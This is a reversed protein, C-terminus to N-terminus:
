FDYRLGTEVGFAEKEVRELQNATNYQFTTQDNYSLTGFARLRAGGDNKLWKVIGVSAVTNEGDKWGEYKDAHGIQGYVDTKNNVKYYGSIIAGLEKNGSNYDTQQAMVGVTLEKTPKLSVMARLSNFDGAQTYAVGADFKEDEHLIHGAVLDRRVDTPVGNKFVTVEGGHNNTGTTSSSADEDMAYHLKVQTKGDNFKPSIYQIVNNHRDGLYSFPLGVGSAYVYSQDVYDIDDDPTYIRGARVTGYQKNKLGLYTNRSEFNRGAGDDDLHVRYELYYELDTADTLKEDGTLRLRSGGSNMKTRDTKANTVAGTVTNTTKTDVNDYTGFLYLRGSIKPDAHATTALMAGLAISTAIALKQTSFHKM